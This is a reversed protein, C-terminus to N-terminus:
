LLLVETITKSQLETVTVGGGLPVRWFSAQFLFWRLCTLLCCALGASDTFLLRLTVGIPM